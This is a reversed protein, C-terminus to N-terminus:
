RPDFDLLPYLNVTLYTTTASTHHYISQYSRVLELTISLVQSCFHRHDVVSATLDVTALFSHQIENFEVLSLQTHFSSHDFIM